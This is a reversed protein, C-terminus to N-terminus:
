EASFLQIKHGFVGSATVFYDGAPLEPTALRILQSGKAVPVIEELVINNDPGYLKINVMEASEFAQDFSLQLSRMTRNVSANFGEGNAADAMNGEGTGGAFCNSPSTQITYCAHKNYAKNFGNVTISVPLPYNFGEGVTFTVQEGSTGPKRSPFHFPVNNRDRFNIFMEYDNLLGSLKVTYTGGCELFYVYSDVDGLFDIQDPTGNDPLEVPFQVSGGVDQSGGGCVPTAATTTVSLTGAGSQLDGCVGYVRVSYQTSPSTGSITISNNTTRANFHVASNQLVQVVFQNYNPDGTWSVTLSTATSTASLGTVAPCNCGSETNDAWLPSVATLMLLLAAAFFIRKHQMIKYNLTSFHTSQDFLAM